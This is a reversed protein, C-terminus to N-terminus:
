NPGERRGKHAPRDTRQDSRRRGETTDGRRLNYHAASADDDARPGHQFVGHRETASMPQGRMLRAPTSDSPRARPPPLIHWHSAVAPRAGGHLAHGARRVRGRAEGRVRPETSRYRKGNGGRHRRRRRDARRGGGYQLDPSVDRSPSRQPFRETKHDVLRIQSIRRM